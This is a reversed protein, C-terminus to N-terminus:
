FQIRNWIVNIQAYINDFRINPQGEKLLNQFIAVKNKKM